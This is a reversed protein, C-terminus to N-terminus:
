AKKKGSIEEFLALSNKGLVAIKYTFFGALMPLLQLQLGVSEAYLTNYRNFVLVLIVPILFRPQASAGGASAGLTTAGISDISKVLLRLYLIGGLAGVLYSAAVDRTYFSCVAAACVLTTATTWLQYEQKSAEYALQEEQLRAEAASDDGADAVMRTAVVGRKQYGSSRQWSQGERASPPDAYKKGSQTKGTMAISPTNQPLLPKPKERLKASLDVNMDNLDNLRSLGLFGSGAGTAPGRAAKAEAANGANDVDEKAKDMWNTNWIFDSDYRNKSRKTYDEPGTGVGPKLLPADVDVEGFYQTRVPKRRQEGPRRMQQPPRQQSESHCCIDREPRTPPGLCHTFSWSKRRGVLQVTSIATPITNMAM